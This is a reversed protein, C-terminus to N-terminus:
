LGWAMDGIEVFRAYGDKEVFKLIYAHRMLIETHKAKHLVCYFRGVAGM